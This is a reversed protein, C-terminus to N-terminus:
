VEAFEQPGPAWEDEEATQADPADSPVVNTVHEDASAAEGGAEGGDEGGDSVAFDRETPEKKHNRAYMKLGVAGGIGVLFLLIMTIGVPPRMVVWVVGAVGLGCACAVPCTFICTLNAISNGLFPGVFPVCDAVVELPKFLCCFGAWLVLLFVFRLAWTLASSDQQMAKFLDERSLRGLRLQALQFGSCLWSDSATWGSLRGNNNLGLVTTLTNSMDNGYFSVRVNGLNEFPNPELMYETGSARWDTPTSSAMVARNLPMRELFSQPVTYPGIDAESAWQTGSRPAGFPWPPNEAGCNREWNNSWKEAFAGSDIHNNVWQKEYTYTIYTTSGGGVADKRTHRHENEVCQLIQSETKLGVGQFELDLSFDGGGYFTPLGATQLDCTFLVLEGSGDSNSSCGTEVVTELGEAIARQSCVARRENWGLVICAGLITLPALVFATVLSNCLRSLGSTHIIRGLRPEGWGRSGAVVAAAQVPVSPLANVLMIDPVALGCEAEGDGSAKPAESPTMCTAFVGPAVTQAVVEAETEVVRDM